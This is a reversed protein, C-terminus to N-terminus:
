ESEKLANLINPSTIIQKRDSHSNSYITLLDDAKPNAEDKRQHMSHETIEDQNDLNKIYDKLLGANELLIKFRLVVLSTVVFRSDLINEYCFFPHELAENQQQKKLSHDLSSDATMDNTFSGDDGSVGASIAASAVTPYQSPAKEEDDEEVEEEEEDEEEDAADELLSYLDEQNACALALRAVDSRADSFVVDGYLISGEEQYCPKSKTFHHICDAAQKVSQTRNFLNEADQDLKEVAASFLAIWEDIFPLIEASSREHGMRKYSSSSSSPGTMFGSQNADDDDDDDDDDDNYYSYISGDMINHSHGRKKIVAKKKRALRIRKERKWFEEKEKEFEDEQTKELFRNSRQQNQKEFTQGEEEEEEEGDSNMANKEIDSESGGEKAEDDDDDDDDDDDETTMGALFRGIGNQNSYCLNLAAPDFSETLPENEEWIVPTEFTKHKATRDGPSEDGAFTGEERSGGGSRFLSFLSRSFLTSLGNEQDEEEEERSLTGNTSSSSSSFSGNTKREDLGDRQELSSSSSSSNTWFFSPTSFRYGLLNSLFNEDQQSQGEEPDYLATKQDTADDNNNNNNNNRISRHTLGNELGSREIAQGNQLLDDMKEFRSSKNTTQHPTEFFSNHKQNKTYAKREYCFNEGEDRSTVTASASWPFVTKNFASFVSEFGGFNHCNWQDSTQHNKMRDSSLTSGHQTKKEGTEDHCHITENETAKKSTEEKPRTKDNNTNEVDQKQTGKVGDMPLPSSSPNNKKGDRQGDDSADCGGGDLISFFQDKEEQKRNTSPRTKKGVISHGGGGGDNFLRQFKKMHMLCLDGERETPRSCWSLQGGAKSRHKCRFLKPKEIASLGDRSSQDKGFLLLLLPNTSCVHDPQILPRAWEPSFLLSEGFDLHSATEELEVFSGGGRRRKRREAMYHTQCLGKALSDNLCSESDHRCVIGMRRYFTSNSEKAHFWESEDIPHGREQSLLKKISRRAPKINSARQRKTKKHHQNLRIKRGMRKKRISSSNNGGKKTKVPNEKAATTRRAGRKTPSATV